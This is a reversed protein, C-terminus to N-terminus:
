ALGVSTRRANGSTSHRAAMSPRSREPLVMRTAPGTGNRWQRRRKAGASGAKSSEPLMSMARISHRPGCAWRHRTRACAQNAIPGAANPAPQCPLADHRLRKTDVNRIREAPTERRLSQRVGAACGCRRPLAQWALRASRRRSEDRPRLPRPPLGSCGSTCPEPRPDGPLRQQPSFPFGFGRFRSRCTLAQLLGPGALAQVM